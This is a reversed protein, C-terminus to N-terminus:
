FIFTNVSRCDGVPFVVIIQSKCDYLVSNYKGSIVKM